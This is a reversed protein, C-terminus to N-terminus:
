VRCHLTYYAVQEGSYHPDARLITYTVGDFTLTDTDRNPVIALGEAPLTIYFDDERIIQGDIQDRRYRKPPACHVTYETEDPISGGTVPDYVSTTRTLTSAKGYQEHLRKALPRLRADLTM